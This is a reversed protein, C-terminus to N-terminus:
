SLKSTRHHQVIRAVFAARFAPDALRREDAVPLHPLRSLLAEAFLGRGTGGPDFRLAACSIVSVPVGDIGCSPSDAKLVYGDLGARALEEIRRDTYRRMRDTVDCRTGTTMLAIGGGDAKVLEMTERPTGFGAEVEPCVPVWEVQPGLDDVLWADRKHGADYRVPEGLLCASIGVRPRESV